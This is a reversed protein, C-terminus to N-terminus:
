PPLLSLTLSQKNVKLGDDPEAPDHLLDFHFSDDEVGLARYHTLFHELMIHGNYDCAVLSYVWIRPASEAEWGEDAGSVSIAALCLLLSARCWLGPAM